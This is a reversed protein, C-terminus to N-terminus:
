LERPDTIKGMIASAIVTEPSGLYVQGKVSGMRGMFNRNSTSICVEGEGILGLHGGLCVGCGPNTVLAGAELLIQIIGEEIATKYIDQSAPTVILRVDPHVYRGKLLNAALRLDEMRGNTCSGLFAQQIKTGAVEEAFKGNSPNHPLAVMPKLASLDFDFVEAYEADPDPLIPEIDGKVRQRLFALTKKDPPILCAKVGMEFAMNALCQRGDMSMEEIVSGSLEIAKYILRADRFKRLLFLAVDKASVRTGLHGNLVIKATEPVKFWLSGTGLAVAVDTVGFGTGLAGCAGYTTAHSDPAVIIKGPLVHGKEMMVQHCIGGRGQEYFHKVGMKKAFERTKKLNEAAQVTPAPVFHDPIIVCEVTDCIRDIGLQALPRQIGPTGVDHLMVTDVKAEVIQGPRVSELGAHKALIKEIVTMGM